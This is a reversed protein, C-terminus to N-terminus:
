KEELLITFNDNNTNIYEICKGRGQITRSDINIFNNLGDERSFWEGHLTQPLTCEDYRAYM